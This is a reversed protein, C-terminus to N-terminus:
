GLPVTGEPGKQDFEVYVHLKIPLSPVFQGIGSPISFTTPSSKGSRFKKQIALRSFGAVTPHSRWFLMLQIPSGGELLDALTDLKLKMHDFPM